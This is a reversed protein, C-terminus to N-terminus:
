HVRFRLAAYVDWLTREVTPQGFDGFLAGESYHNRLVGIALTPRVPMHLEAGAHAAILYQGKEQYRTVLPDDGAPGGSFIVTAGALPSWGRLERGWTIGLSAPVFLAAQATLAVRDRSEANNLALKLYPWASITRPDTGFREEADSELSTLGEELYIGVPVGIELREGFGWSPGVYVFYDHGQAQDNRRQDAILTAGVDIHLGPEVSPSQLTPFCGAVLLSALAPWQWGRLTRIRETMM